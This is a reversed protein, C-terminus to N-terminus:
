SLSIQGRLDDESNEPTGSSEMKGDKPTHTAKECKAGFHPQSVENLGSVRLPHDAANTVLPNNFILQKLVEALSTPESKTLGAKVNLWAGM